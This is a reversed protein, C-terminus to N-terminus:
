RRYNTNKGNSVEQQEQDKLTFTMTAGDDLTSTAYICGGHAEVLQKAISLGLGTGGITKNRSVDGRFFVDFIHELNEPAIGRGNDTIEVQVGDIIETGCIHIRPVSQNGYKVANSIINSIIRYVMKGDISLYTEPAINLDFSIDVGSEELELKKEIFVDELFEGIPVPTFEYQMQNIDLKSFLFLDDILKNTYQANSEIISLYKEKKEETTAVGSQIADVYGIVSTIPTKLDHSIGAILEKRNQEYREKLEQAEKLEVSMRNFSAVLDGVMNSAEGEVTYGYNGKSIEEVAVRLRELPDMLRKRMHLSFLVTSVEKLILVTSLTILILAPFNLEFLKMMAFFILGLGILFIVPVWRLIKQLRQFENMAQYIEKESPPTNFLGSIRITHVDKDKKDEMEECGTKKFCM